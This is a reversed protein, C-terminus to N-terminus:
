DEAVIEKLESCGVEVMAAEGESITVLMSIPNACVKQLGSIIKTINNPNPLNPAEAKQQNLALPPKPAQPHHSFLFLTVAIAAAASVTASVLSVTFMNVSNNLPM